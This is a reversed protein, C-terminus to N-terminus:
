AVHQARAQVRDVNVRDLALGLLDESSAARIDHTIGPGSCLFSLKLGARAAESFISGLAQTEDMKTVLLKAPRFASYREICDRLDRAKMYAPVVLHVDLGACQEFAAAAADAARSEAVTYGPTDVFVAGDGRGEAIMQPLLYEAPVQQFPIQYTSAVSQLQLHATARAVDLSLMRAGRASAFRTASVALKALSTTKGAGRPGVLVVVSSRESDAEAGLRPALAVYSELEARLLGEIM